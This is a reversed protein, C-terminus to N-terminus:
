TGTAATSGEPRAPGTRAAAPTAPTTVLLPRCALTEDDPAAGRHGAHDHEARRTERQDPIVQVAVDLGLPRVQLRRGHVALLVDQEYPGIGSRSGVLREAAAGHGARPRVCRHDEVARGVPPLAGFDRD